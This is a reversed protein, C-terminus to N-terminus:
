ASSRVSNECERRRRVTSSFFCSSSSATSFFFHSAIMWRSMAAERASDAADAAALLAGGSVEGGIAMDGAGLPPRKEESAEDSLEEVEELEDMVAEGEGFGGLLRRSRVERCEM